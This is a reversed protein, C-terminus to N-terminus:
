PQKGFTIPVLLPEPEQADVPPFRWSQAVECVCQALGADRVSTELLQVGSMPYGSSHLLITIHMSGTLQARPVGNRLARAYCLKLDSEHEHLTAAVQEPTRLGRQVLPDGISVEFPPLPRQEPAKKLADAHARARRAWRGHPQAALYDNFAALAEKREGSVEHGLALYYFKDGAPEFFVHDDSLKSMTPDKEIALSVALRSKEVQEDRDLAVGLGWQALKHADSDPVATEEAQRYRVIAEDLRGMAMLTEASNGYLVSRGYDDLMAPSRESDVLRLALDYETLAEQFKGVRSYVIGLESAIREAEVGRGDIARAKLMEAIARECAGPRCSEPHQLDSTTLARAICLLPAPDKPHAAAAKECLAQAQDALRYRAETGTTQTDVKYLLEEAQELLGPDAHLPLAVFLATLCVRLM